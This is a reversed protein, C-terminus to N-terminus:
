GPPMGNPMCTIAGCPRSRSNSVMAPDMALTMVLLEEAAHEVYGDTVRMTGAVAARELRPGASQGGFRFILDTCAFATSSSLATAGESGM